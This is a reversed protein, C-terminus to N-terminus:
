QLLNSAPPLRLLADSKQQREANPNTPNGRLADALTSLSKLLRNTVEYFHETGEPGFLSDTNEDFMM